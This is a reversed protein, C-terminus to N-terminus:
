DKDKQEELYVLLNVQKGQAATNTLIVKICKTPKNTYVHCNYVAAYDQTNVSSAM